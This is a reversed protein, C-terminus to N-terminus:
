GGTMSRAVGRTDTPLLPALRAFQDDTMWYGSDSM